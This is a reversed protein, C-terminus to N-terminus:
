FLKYVKRSYLYIAFAMLGNTLCIIMSTYLPSISSMYYSLATHLIATSLTIYTIYKTKGYYFLFNVFQFYICNFLAGFCQYKIMPNCGSYKPFYINILIPAIISILFALCTYTLILVITQKQLKKKVTSDNSSLNKFIYVSTTANFASGIMLIISGFNQSFSFLGVAATSQFMNLFFRDVGMKLWGAIAHPTLPLGYALCHKVDKKKFSWNFILANKFLFYSSYVAALLISIVWAFIRGEWDQKLFIVLIITIAFSLIAYGISYLGYQGICEKIRLIDLQLNYFVTLFCVLIGLLQYYLTLGIVPEFYNRFLVVISSFLIAGIFTVFSVFNVTRPFKDKEKFYDVSVLGNTNLNIVCGIIMVFTGFLSVFGYGQPNIYNAIFFLLVFSIGKNVFSYISFLAGNKITTPVHFKILKM